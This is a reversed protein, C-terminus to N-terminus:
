GGASPEFRVANVPQGELLSGVGIGGRPSTIKWGGDRYACTFRNGAHDVASVVSGDKPALSIEPWEPHLDPLGSHHM